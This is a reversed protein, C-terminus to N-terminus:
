SNESRQGQQWTDSMPTVIHKANFKDFLCIFTEIFESKELRSALRNSMLIVSQKANFKEPLYNFDDTFEPIELRATLSDSMFTGNNLM